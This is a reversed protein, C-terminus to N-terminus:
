RSSIVAGALGLTTVVIATTMGPVQVALAVAAILAMVIVLRGAPTVPRRHLESGEAM